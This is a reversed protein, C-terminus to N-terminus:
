LNETFTVIEWSDNCRRLTDKAVEHNTTIAANHRGIKHRVMYLLQPEPKIRYREPPGDFGIVGNSNMDNWKGDIFYQLTKGDALAQVLPLFQKANSSNM